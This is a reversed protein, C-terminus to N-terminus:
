FQSKMWRPARIAPKLSKPIPKEGGPLVLTETVRGHLYLYDHTDISGLDGTRFWGDTFAAKTASSDDLYGAFVNPGRVEIEGVAEANRQNIRVEVGPIPQGASGIRAHGPRNFSVIPSTETLGYGVLVDYGLAVLTRETMEDLAAGGSALHRLDPAVARRVHDFVLHGFGCKRLATSVALLRDFIGAAFPGRAKIGETMATLLADYLRPVGILWTAGGARLARSLEPGSIGSPLVVSAGCSLPTLLGVVLPYAHHLPLPLLARDDPGIRLIDGLACISSLVNTHTLPVAKPTGTTGSTHLLFAVDNPAASLLMEDTAVALSRGSTRERLVRLSLNQGATESEYLLRCRSGALLTNRDLEALKADLPMAAAGSALIGLATVVWAVSNPAVLGVPEGQGIGHARLEDAVRRAGVALQAFSVTGVTEDVSVLAPHTDYGALRRVLEQLTSDAM